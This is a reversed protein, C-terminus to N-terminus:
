VHEPGNPSTPRVCVPLAPPAGVRRVVMGHEHESVVRALRNWHLTPCREIEDGVADFRRQRLSERRRAAQVHPQPAARCRDLLVQLGAKDVLHVDRDHGDEEAGTLAEEIAEVSAGEAVLTDLEDAGGPYGVRAEDPRFLARSTRPYLEPSSRGGTSSGAPM